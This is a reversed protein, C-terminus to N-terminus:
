NPIEHRVNRRDLDNLRELLAQTMEAFERDNNIYDKDQGHLENIKGRITQRFEKNKLVEETNILYAFIEKMKTFRPYHEQEDRALGIMHMVMQYEDDYIRPNVHGALRKGGRMKQRKTFRSKGM